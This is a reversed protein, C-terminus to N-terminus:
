TVETQEPAEQAGDIIPPECPEPEAAKVSARRSPRPPEPEPVAEAWGGAILGATFREPLAITEGRDLWGCPEVLLRKKLRIKPM